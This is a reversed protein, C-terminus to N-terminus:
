ATEHIIRALPDKGTVVHRAHNNGVSKSLRIIDRLLARRQAPSCERGAMTVPNLLRVPCNALAAMLSIDGWRLIGPVLPAMSVRAVPCDWLYSAPM